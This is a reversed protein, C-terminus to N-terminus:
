IVRGLPLGGRLVSEPLPQLHAPFLLLGPREIAFLQQRQEPTLSTSTRITRRMSRRAAWITMGTRGPKSREIYEGTVMSIPARRPSITAKPRTSCTRTTTPGPSTTTTWTRCTPTTSFTSCLAEGKSQPSSGCNATRGKGAAAQIKDQDEWRTPYGTGPKTEVNNWWMYETGKRDTWINKCAITCTHCGICKDLHFVMSVQSRVDM